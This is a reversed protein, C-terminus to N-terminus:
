NFKGCYLTMSKTDPILTASKVNLKFCFWNLEKHFLEYRSSFSKEIFVLTSVCSKGSQGNQGSHTNLKLSAKVLDEPVLKYRSFPANSHRFLDLFTWDVTAYSNVKLPVNLTNSEPIHCDSRLSRTNIFVASMNNEWNQQSTLFFDRCGSCILRKVAEQHISASNPYIDQKKIPLHVTQSSYFTSYTMNCKLKLGVFAWYSKCKSSCIDEHDSIFVKASANIEIPKAMHM